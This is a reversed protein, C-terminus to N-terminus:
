SQGRFGTSHQFDKPNLSGRGSQNLGGNNEGGKQQELDDEWRRGNLWTAPYPIYQGNDRQWQPSRKQLELAANILEMLKDDPNIKKWAKYAAQKAVKRPYSNWFVGFLRECCEEDTFERQPPLPHQEETSREETNQKETNEKYTNILPHNEVAQIELAQIELPQFEVEQFDGRTKEEKIDPPIEYIDYIYEIRGSKTDKPFLKTVKVYGYEQLEKLATKVAANNEKSISTIGKVSFKWDDPLSLLLSLLGKAKLSIRKDRLHVNSMVTYNKTKNVRWVEM